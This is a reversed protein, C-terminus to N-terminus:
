TSINSTSTAGIPRGTRIVPFSALNQTIMEKRKGWGKELQPAHCEVRDRGHKICEKQLFEPHEHRHRREVSRGM